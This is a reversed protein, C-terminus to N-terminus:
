LKILDMVNNFESNSQKSLLFNLLQLISIMMAPGCLLIQKYLSKSSLPFVQSLSASLFMLKELDTLHETNWDAIAWILSQKLKLNIGKHKGKETNIKWTINCLLVCFYYHKQINPAQCLCSILALKPLLTLKIKWHEKIKVVLLIKWKFKDEGNNQINYTFFVLCNFLFCEAVVTSHQPLYNIVFYM